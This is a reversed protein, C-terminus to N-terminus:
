LPQLLSAIPPTVQFCREWVAWWILAHTDLVTM